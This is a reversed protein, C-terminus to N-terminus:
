DALGRVLASVIYRSAETHHTSVPKLRKKFLDSPVM